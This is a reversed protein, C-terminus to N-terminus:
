SLVSFSINRQLGTFCKKSGSLNAMRSNGPHMSYLENKKNLLSRFFQTTNSIHIDIINIRNRRKRLRNPPAACCAIGEEHRSSLLSFFLLNM